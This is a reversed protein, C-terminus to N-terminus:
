WSWWHKKKPEEATEQSLKWALYQAEVVASGATAAGHVSGPCLHEDPQMSQCRECYSWGPGAEVTNHEELYM